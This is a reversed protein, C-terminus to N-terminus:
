MPGRRSIVRDLAAVVAPAFERDTRARLEALARRGAAADGEPALDAFANATRVIRATLPQEPYPDAQREVVAAVRRSVATRRVVAGGLLAIRRQEGPDLGQTAGGALPERLSLQGLDHLLAAYELVTLEPEIVGLERGMARSLDAVRRAHGRPTHGAVETVRALTAITQHYGARVRAHRRLSVQTLLLPVCFVPLAWLGVVAAALAIVAGTACIATGIGLLGRLEERVLARLPWDHRAATVTAALVADCLGTLALLAVTLLADAPGRDPGGGLLGAAQAGHCCAAAFGVALLRRAVRDPDPARGRAVRPLLGVLAAVATVAVVQLPGHDAPRGDVEVLLAYALAGASGLPARERDGPLHAPLATGVAILAGFALAVVPQTLGDWLTWGLAAAALAAAAGQTLRPVWALGCRWGAVAPGVTSPRGGGAGSM